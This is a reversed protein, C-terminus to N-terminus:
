NAEKFIENLKAMAKNSEDSNDNHDPAIFKAIYNRLSKMKKPDNVIEKTLGLMDARSPNDVENLIMFYRETKLFEIFPKIASFITNWSSVNELKINPFKNNWEKLFTSIDTYEKELEKSNKCNKWKM